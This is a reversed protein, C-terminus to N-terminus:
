METKKRIKIGFANLPNKITLTNIDDQTFGAKLMEPILHTILNKFPRLPRGGPFGNGDHSLLIKNLLNENKFRKIRKIYDETNSAKIGDLSIWAGKSAFKILINDDKVTHAHTWIWASLDVNYAELLDAQFKAAKINNRTHVALTLGTKLHALIGAKFLKKDIKSVSDNDFALKIFGPKIDTHDIGNKFEKIWVKSITKATAKFAFSPIYKDKAAGYFGTNSIIQIKTSDSITKLLDIRRGFHATTCDFISYVGSAKLEKLYPIVQRYLKETNYISTKNIEKGFNSFIHEHTLTFGLASPKIEGNVTNIYSFVSKRACSTFCLATCILIINIKFYNM